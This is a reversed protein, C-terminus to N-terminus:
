SVGCGFVSMQARLAWLTGGVVKKSRCVTEQYVYLSPDVSIDTPKGCRATATATCMWVDLMGTPKERIASNMGSDFRVQSECVCM